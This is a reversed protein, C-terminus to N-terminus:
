GKETNGFAARVARHGEEVGPQFAFPASQRASVVSARQAQLREESVARGLRVAAGLGALRGQAEAVAAGEVGLASGAGFLGPVTTEGNRDVVPVEGGLGEVLVTRAGAAVFLDPVTRLGGALLVHDVAETFPAGVPEGRGDLRRLRVAAVGGAGDDLIAEAAVALRLRTGFLPVGARPLHPLITRRPGPVALLAAGPRAWIPAMSRLRLLAQWQAAPPGLHERGPGAAAAVIGLPPAGAYFLEQAVAFALPSLGVVIGRRGPRVGWVNALTQAAGVALVGTLTWGPLAVPVETAGSAVVAAAAAFPAAAGDVFLRWPDDSRGPELAWVSRGVDIRAGAARAEAVLRGAEERGVHWTGGRRHLQGVLRGGAIPYEDFVRVRLGRAAAEAAAALGAPGAGIVALDADLVM